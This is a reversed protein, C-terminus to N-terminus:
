SRDYFSLRFKTSGPLSHLLTIEGYLAGIMKKVIALGMGTGKERTTFFPLWIKEQLHPSIGRGNDEFDIRRSNEELLFAITIRDAGHQRANLVGGHRGAGHSHFVAHEQGDFAFPEEREQLRM